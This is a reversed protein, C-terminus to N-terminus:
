PLVITGMGWANSCQNFLEEWSKIKIDASGSEPKASLMIKKKLGLNAGFLMDTNKDGIMWAEDARINLESLLQRGLLTEPKRCSCGSEPKHPCVKNNGFSSTEGCLNQIVYNNIREVENASALGREIVSQNTVLALKIGLNSFYRLCQSAGPLLKVQEIQNLHNVLEILTGDRDLM